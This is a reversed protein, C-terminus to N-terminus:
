LDRSTVSERVLWGLFPISGVSEVVANTTAAGM